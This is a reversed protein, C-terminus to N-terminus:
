AAPDAGFDGIIIARNVGWRWIKHTAAIGGHGDRNRGIRGVLPTLAANGDTAFGM